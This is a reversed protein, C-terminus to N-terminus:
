RSWGNSSDCQNSTPPKAYRIKYSFSEKIGELHLLSANVTEALNFYHGAM